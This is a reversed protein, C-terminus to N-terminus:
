ATGLPVTALARYIAGQPTLQSEFLVLADDSIPGADGSPHREIWRSLPGRPKAGEIRALTVHPHNGRQEPAIGLPALHREIDAAFAAVADGGLSLGAFVVRPRAPSPFAGVGAVRTGPLRTTAAVARLTAVIPDIDADPTDGLFKITVHLNPAPVLRVRRAASAPLARLESQLDALVSRTAEPVTMAVFCRKM